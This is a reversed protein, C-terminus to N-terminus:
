LLREPFLKEATRLIINSRMQYKGNRCKPLFPCDTCRGCRAKGSFLINEQKVAMRVDEEFDSILMEPIM